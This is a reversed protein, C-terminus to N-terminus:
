EMQAFRLWEKNTMAIKVKSPDEANRIEDLVWLGKRAINYAGNADADKPLSMDCENSNYFYGEKNCVPSQIFDEKEDGTSNRLQVVLNFIHILKEFFSKADSASEMKIIDPIINRQSKYEIGYTSLLNKLMETPIVTRDSWMNNNEADRFKEIRKGVSCVTWKTKTGEAKFTFKSYDFKFEFYDATSNFCISDFSEFFKKAKAINEYKAYFLNAFGTTPDIKSTLYAPVYFIIGTQKGMKNFGDFSDTLQLANLANGISFPQKQERSKDMVLYNFKDILMKEFKQYVSKEVKGGRGRKFGMNLDELAIVANYKLVLEALKHVVQSMYGEKLEKINEITQWNKRASMREKEKEDLLEHYDVTVDNSNGISNLSLQELIKGDKNVVVAYLLNREGRDIGIVCVDSNNHILTNIKTNFKDKLNDGFNMTIPVHLMFKDETYRKDKIIDYEFTKKEGKHQKKEIPKGAKHVIMEEANISSPRYFVEAEGNLKYVANALNREDFLMKLYITHLNLNGHSKESFDKNHIRFLFLKNENILEDIYSADIETFTVKYGQREVERFFASIDAYSETDSFKFGFKSWDPHISISAKYFDILTHCDKLNFEKDGGKKFSGSNYIRLIEENPKYYSINSKAFFVKPLMKNPGPLLKYEMKHYVDNTVPKPIKNFIQRSNNNMIGLYYYGKRELLVGLNASEKNKDWGNLFTPCNFNLKFKETSFPKKTVYNRVMNYISDVNRIEDMLQTWEGYLIENRDSEMGTGQFLKITREIEKVSDLFDKVADVLKVNKSFKKDANHADLSVLMGNLSDHCMEALNKVYENYTSILDDKGTIKALSLLSYSKVSKLCKEKEAEYKEGTKKGSYDRDYEASIANKFYNWQEGLIVAFTTLATDNKVFVGTGKCEMLAVSFNRITDGKLFRETYDAFERLAMIVEDDNSFEDITFLAERDSLLQKYLMKMKGIKHYDSDAHMKQNLLNIEKNIQGILENYLDINAQVLCTNYGDVTFISDCENLEMKEALGYVDIGSNKVQEYIRINDLFRPFNEDILRYAISSSKKESSYLNQRVTNYGTFYTTFSKFSEVAEKDEAETLMDPLIKEIWENKGLETSDAKKFLESIEKRAKDFEVDLEKDNLKEREFYAKAANQLASIKKDKLTSNIFDKHYNDLIVKVKKYNQGREEDSALIESKKINELTKGVPILENRLTKSIAYQHTLLEYYNGM